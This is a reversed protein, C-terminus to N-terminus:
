RPLRASIVALQQATAQQLKKFDRLKNQQIQLNKRLAKQQRLVNHLLRAQRLLDKLLQECIEDKQPNVARLLESRQTTQQAFKMKEADTLPNGLHIQEFATNITQELLLLSDVLSSDPCLVGLKNKNKQQETQLQVFSKNTLDFLAQARRVEKKYHFVSDNVWTQQALLKYQAARNWFEDAQDWGGKFSFPLTGAVVPSDVETKLHTQLLVISDVAQSDLAELVAKGWDLHGEIAVDLLPMSFVAVAFGEQEKVQQTSSSLVLKEGNVSWIVSKAEKNSALSSPFTMELANTNNVKLLPQEEQQYNLSAQQAQTNIIFVFCCFLPVTIRLM